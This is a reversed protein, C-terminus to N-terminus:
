CAKTTVTFDAYEGELSDVREELGKITDQTASLATELIAMCPELADVFPSKSKSRSKGHACRTKHGRTPELPVDVCVLGEQSTSPLSTM